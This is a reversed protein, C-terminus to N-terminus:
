QDIQALASRLPQDSIRMVGQYPAGLELILFIAAAVSLAGVLLTAGVTGNFRTLLGIGLFLTSLWFILVALLPWPFSSDRQEFMLLREESLIEAEQLARSKLTREADTKPSLNQIRAVDGEAASRTGASNLEEPRTASRSWIRDHTQRVADRLGERASTADRGYMALTQDLLLVHASLARLESSQRDYSSSASAVLLSLVLASVSAILGMVLKIADRSREDRHGDPLRVHLTMGVIGAGLASGLVISAIAFANM